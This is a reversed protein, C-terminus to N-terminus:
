DAEMWSFHVELVGSAMTPLSLDHIRNRGHRPQPHIKMDVYNAGDAEGTYLERGLGDKLVCTHGATTAGKWRYFVPELRGSWTDTALTMKIYDKEITVAM